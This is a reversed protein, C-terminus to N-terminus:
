KKTYKLFSYKLNGQEKDIKYILNWENFDIEPFFTDAKKDDEIKTIYLNNIYPLYLNYIESGGIVFPEDDIDEILELVEDVKDAVVFKPEYNYCETLFKEKEEFYSWRRKTMIVNKRGKLPRGISELTKSGMIVFHGMTKEKFYQLDDPISYLMQGNLGIGNNQNVAVIMSMNLKKLDTM